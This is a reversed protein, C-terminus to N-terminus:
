VSSEDISKNELLTPGVVCRPLPQVDTIEFERDTLYSVSDPYLHPLVVYKTQDLVNEAGKLVNTEHGNVSLKIMDLYDIDNEECYEGIKVTQKKLVEWDPDNSPDVDSNDTSVFRHGTLSNSNLMFELTEGSVNSVAENELTYNRINNNELNKKTSEYNRPDAEFGYITGTEGIRKGASVTFEGTATGVELVTDGKQLVEDYRDYYKLFDNCWVTRGPNKEPMYWDINDRLIFDGDAKYVDGEKEFDIRYELYKEVLPNSIFPVYYWNVGYKQQINRLVERKLSDQPVM